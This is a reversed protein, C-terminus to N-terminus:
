NSLYLHAARRQQWVVTPSRPICPCGASAPHQHSTLGHKQGACSVRRSHYTTTLM